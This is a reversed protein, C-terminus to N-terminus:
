ICVSFMILFLSLVLFCYSMIDQGESMNRSLMM